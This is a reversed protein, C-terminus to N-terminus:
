KDKDDENEILEIEKSSLMDVVSDLDKLEQLTMNKMDFKKTAQVAIAGNDGTGSHEIRDKVKGFLRNDSYEKSKMRSRSESDFADTSLVIAQLEGVTTRPDAIMRELRERTSGYCAGILNRLSKSDLIKNFDQYNQLRLTSDYDHAELATPVKRTRAPADIVTVEKSSARSGRVRKPKIEEESSEKTRTRTRRRRTEM